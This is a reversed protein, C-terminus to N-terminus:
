ELYKDEKGGLDAYGSETMRLVDRLTGWRSYRQYTSMNALERMRRPKQSGCRVDRIMRTYRINFKEDAPGRACLLVSM